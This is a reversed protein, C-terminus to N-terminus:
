HCRSLALLILKNLGRKVLILWIASWMGSTSGVWGRAWLIPLLSELLRITKLIWIGDDAKATQEIMAKVIQAVVFLSGSGLPIPVREIPLQEVMFTPFM